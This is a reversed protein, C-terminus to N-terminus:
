SWWSFRKVGPILNDKCATWIEAGKGDKNVNKLLTEIPIDDPYGLFLNLAGFSKAPVTYIIEISLEEAGGSWYNELQLDGDVVSAYCIPKMGNDLLKLQSM